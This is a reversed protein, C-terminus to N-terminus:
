FPLHRPSAQSDLFASALLTQPIGLCGPGQGQPQQVSLVPLGTATPFAEWFLCGRWPLSCDPTHSLLGRAQARSQKSGRGTYGFAPHAHAPGARM